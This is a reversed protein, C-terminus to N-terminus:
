ISKATEWLSTTRQFGQLMQDEWPPQDKAPPPIVDATGKPNDPLYVGSEFKGSVPVTHIPFTLTPSSWQYCWRCSQCTYQQKFVQVMQCPEMEFLYIKHKAPSFIQNWVQSIQGRYWHGVPQQLKNNTGDTFALQLLMVFDNWVTTSPKAQNPYILTAHQQSLQSYRPNTVWKSLQTRASNTSDALTMVQLFLHCCQPGHLWKSTAAPLNTIAKMIFQDHKCQLLL